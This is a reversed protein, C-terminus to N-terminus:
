FTMGLSFGKGDQTVLPAATLGGARYTDSSNLVVQGIGLGIVSGAVMDSVWHRHGRINSVALLTAAGYPLWSDGYVGSYVRAVAFYQTFHYSPMATGYGDPQVSIGHFNGFDFPDDTFTGDSCDPQDLDECPRKRAFVTKLALQSTVFSYALAKSSLLAARQAREDGTLAGYAYGGAIGSLMWVDESALGLDTLKKEWPLTPLAFGDFAKEVTNQYTRTLPKDLIVLAGIGAVIAATKRPNKVPARLIAKVDDDVTALTERWIGTTGSFPISGEAHARTLPACTFTLALLLGALAFRAIM